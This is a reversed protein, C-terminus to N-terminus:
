EGGGCAALAAKLRDRRRIYTEIEKNSFVFGDESPNYPLGQKKDMQYLAAAECLEQAETARRESQLSKLRQLTRELLRSLREGHMSIANIYRTRDRLAETIVLAAHAEPHETKISNSHEDFGLASLNHELAPIRNLRWSTDVFIQAFQKELLGVPKLSDFLQKTFANYANLDEAPLVITHGTLGHRLANLSSRHKGAESKPGTSRSANARNRASRAADHDTISVANNKMIGSRDSTLM